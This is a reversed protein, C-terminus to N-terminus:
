PSHAKNLFFADFVQRAVEPSGPSNEVILGIAIEPSEVPSFAIFLTHDRLHEATNKKDYKENQKLSFVQATGTKAAMTYPMNRAIRSATGSPTHIVNVMGQVMIDWNKQDLPTVMTKSTVEIAQRQGAANEFEKLVHPRVAVGNNAIISAVNALQLPTALNYGQGIGTIITEGAYWPQKRARQKWEASPVLGGLEGTIDIGTIEGLGFNRLGKHLREIGLRHATEYFFIDCSESIAKYVNVYGHGGKRWDRYRHGGHSLSYWGPDAISYHPSIVGTELGTFAVLPKITSAPPYQGRLARNFLPRQPDNQLERYRITSLGLAFENPDFGPKSVFALVEGTKPAIAVVAGRSEGLAEYAARQLTSDITLHLTAGPTPAHRSLVRVLRGTANVEIESYGVQGHLINEYHHEMGVKGIHQTGSYQQTDIQKIEQENIRGVYGIVHSFMEGHPYYRMLGAVIEVGPFRYREVAFRAIEEETLHFRIPISEFSREQRRLKHFAAIDEESIDLIKTLEHITGHLDSIQEPILELSLAPRNEALLVGNRDYIAGRPPPLPIVNIRNNEALTTYHDKSFVQLYVLRLVLGVLSIGIILLAVAARSRFLSSEAWHNKIPIKKRM